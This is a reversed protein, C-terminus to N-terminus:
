RTVTSNQNNKDTLCIYTKGPLFTAPQGNETITLGAANRTWEIKRVTGGACLHCPATAYNKSNELGFPLRLLCVTGNSGLIGIGVATGCYLDLSKIADTSCTLSLYDSFGIGKLKCYLGDNKQFNYFKEKLEINM